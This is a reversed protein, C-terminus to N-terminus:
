LVQALCKINFVKLAREHKIEDRELATMKQIPADGLLDGLTRSTESSIMLEHAKDLLQKMTRRGDVSLAGDGPVFELANASLDTSQINWVLVALPAASSEEAPGGM